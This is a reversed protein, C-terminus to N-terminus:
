VFAYSLRPLIIFLYINEHLVADVFFVSDIWFFVDKKFLPQMAKSFPVFEFGDNEIGLQMHWCFGVRFSEFLGLEIM